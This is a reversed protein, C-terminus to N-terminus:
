YGTPRVSAFASATVAVRSASASVGVRVVHWVCGVEDVCVCVCVCVCVSTNLAVILVHLMWSADHLMCCVGVDLM